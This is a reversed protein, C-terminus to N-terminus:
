PAGCPLQCVARRACRAHSAEEIGAAGWTRYTIPEPRVYEREAVLDRAFEGFDAHDVYAQPDALIADILRKGEGKRWAHAKAASRIGALAAAVCDPPVGLKILQKKNM